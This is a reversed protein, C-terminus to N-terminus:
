KGGIIITADFPASEPATTTITDPYVKIVETLLLSVYDRKSEKVLITTVATTTKENGTKPTSFGADKLNKALIGAVGAKATSNRVMITISQKDLVPTATTTTPTPSIEPPTPEPFPTALAPVGTNESPTNVTIGLKKAILTYRALDLAQVGEGGENSFVKNISQSIFRTSIFFIIAVVAIFFVLIGSYVLDKARVKKLSEIIQTYKINM